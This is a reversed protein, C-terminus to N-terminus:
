HAIITFPTTVTTAPNPATTTESSGDPIGADVQHTMAPPPMTATTTTQRDPNGAAAAIAVIASGALLALYPRVDKRRLDSWKPREISPLKFKSKDLAASPRKEKTGADAAFSLPTTEATNIKGDERAARLLAQRPDNPMCLTEEDTDEEIVGAKSGFDTLAAQAVLSSRDLVKTAIRDEDGDDDDAVGQAVQILKAGDKGKYVVTKDDEDLTIAEDVSNPNPM